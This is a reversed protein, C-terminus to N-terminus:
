PGITLTGKLHSFIQTMMLGDMNFTSMVLTLVVMVPTELVVEGGVVHVVGAVLEYANADREEDLRPEAVDEIYWDQWLLMMQSCFYDLLIQLIYIVLAM